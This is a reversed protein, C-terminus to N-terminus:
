AAKDSIDKVLKLCLYDDVPYSKGSTVPENEYMIGMGDPVFGMQVYLRHAAGFGRYLGVGLGIETYNKDQAGAICASVLQCGLGQRRADPTVNLDQIEPIDLRRFMPYAAQFVLQVYGLVMETETDEAVFFQRNGAEQENLSREFYDAEQVLMVDMKTFAAKIKPLDALSAQRLVLNQM